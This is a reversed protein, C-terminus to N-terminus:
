PGRDVYSERTLWEALIDCVNRGSKAAERRAADTYENDGQERAKTM